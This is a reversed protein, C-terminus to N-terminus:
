MKCRTVTVSAKRARSTCFLHPALRTLPAELRQIRLLRRVCDLSCVGSTELVGLIVEQTWHVGSIQGRSPREFHVVLVGATARCPVRERMRM